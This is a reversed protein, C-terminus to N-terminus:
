RSFLSKFQESIVSDFRADKILNDSGKVYQYGFSGYYFDAEYVARNGEKDVMSLIFRCPFAAKKSDYLERSMHVDCSQLSKVLDSLKSVCETKYKEDEQMSHCDITIWEHLISAGKEAALAPVIKNWFASTDIGDAVENYFDVYRYLETYTDDQIEEDTNEDVINGLEVRYVNQNSYSIKFRIATEDTFVMNASCINEFKSHEDYSYTIGKITYKKNKILEDYKNKVQSTIDAKLGDAEADMGFLVSIDGKAFDEIIKKTQKEYTKAKFSFLGTDPHIQAYAFTSVIIILVLLAAALCFDRILM